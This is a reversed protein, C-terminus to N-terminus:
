HENRSEKSDKNRRETDLKADVQLKDKDKDSHLLLYVVIGAFLCPAILALARWM